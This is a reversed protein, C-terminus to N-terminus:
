RLSVELAADGARVALLGLAEAASEEEGEKRGSQVLGSAAVAGAAIPNKSLAGLLGELRDLQLRLEQAEADRTLHRRSSTLPLM